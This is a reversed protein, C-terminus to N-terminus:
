GGQGGVVERIVDGGSVMLAKAAARACICVGIPGLIYHIHFSNQANAAQEVWRQLHLSLGISIYMLAMRLYMAFYGRLYKTFASRPGDIVLTSVAIPSIIRRIIMEMLLGYASSLLAYFTFILGFRGVMYSIGQFAPRNIAQWLRMMVGGFNGLEKKLEDVTPMSSHDERFLYTVRTDAAQYANMRLEHVLYRGFKEIGAIIDPIFIVGIIGLFAMLLIRFLIQLGEEERMALHYVQMGSMLLVLLIGFAMTMKMARKGPSADLETLSHLITGEEYDFLKDLREFERFEESMEEVLKDYDDEEIQFSAAGFYRGGGGGSEDDEAFAAPIILISALILLICFSSICIMRRLRFSLAERKFSKRM